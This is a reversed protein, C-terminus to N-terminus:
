YLLHAYYCIYDHHVLEGEAALLMEVDERM